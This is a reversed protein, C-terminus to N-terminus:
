RPGLLTRLEDELALLGAAAIGYGVADSDRYDTDPFVFGQFFLVRM